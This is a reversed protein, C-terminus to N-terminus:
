YVMKGDIFAATRPDAPSEFFAKNDGVEVVSGGLVLMAHQSMRRAQFLNHTAWVVTMMREVQVEGIVREVLGVYGPDLNATPEDLLLVSPEFVLARALAVLQTQGGSLSRADQKAIGNLGLRQLIEAVGAKTARGRARLGYALNHEVSGDILIPRQHVMTIERLVALPSTADLPTGDFIITGEDPKQLGTLLRLLTTKGAGTPGVLGIVGGRPIVLGDVHLRFSKSLRRTVNTLQYLADTM